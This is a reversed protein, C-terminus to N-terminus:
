LKTKLETIVQNIIENFKQGQSLYLKTLFIKTLEYENLQEKVDFYVDLNYFLFM